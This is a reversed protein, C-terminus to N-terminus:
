YLRKRIYEDAVAQDYVKEDTIIRFPMQKGSCLDRIAKMLQPGIVPNCEVACSLEGRVMAEFAETTADVSIIKVDVDPKIGHEKLEEIAGLAMDDNQSFIIDIDWENNELYERVVKRGGEFTFDGYDSYSIEYGPNELLIERFGQDREETPSAGVNGMIEMIRLTDKTKSVNDRIWRMARRGEEVFDAGIYTTTLNEERNEVVVNRDSMIVPIGAAKAERLVEDWGTEVVPSVVIVDVGENIFSRIAEFQKEQSQDAIEMHLDINFEKASEEISKTNALRWNSEQGVQSYGVKIKRGDDATEANIRSLNEEVNTSDIINSRLIVQKPVGSENNLISLAYDIAEKGGIPCSVTAKLRGQSVLDLGEDVGKFGDCDVTMVKKDLGMFRLADCVGLAMSDSYTFVVDADKVIRKATITMDYAADKSETGLYVEHININKVNEVASKFGSLRETGQVSTPNGSLVVVDGGKEGLLNVIYNGAQQGIVENDPGIYLTYDFGEVARDMVIVPIGSDHVEKIKDGMIKEDCPSIILLDIGFGILNDIDQIQKSANGTADTTVIRIDEYKDTEERLENILAVRWEERMNAQSVGIISSVGDKNGGEGFPIYHCGYLAISLSAVAILVALIHWKTKIYETM